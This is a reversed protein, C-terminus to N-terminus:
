GGAMARLQRAHDGLHLPLFFLWERWNLPGFFPHPWTFELFAEPDADRVHVYLSELADRHEALLEPVVAAPPQSAGPPLEGSLAVYLIQQANKKDWEVLHQICHLPSWERSSGAALAGPAVANAAAEFDTLAEEIRAILQETSRTAAEARIYDAIRAAEEAPM